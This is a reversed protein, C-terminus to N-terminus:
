PLRSSVNPLAYSQNLREQVMQRARIPDTGPEFILLISSLGTVSTSYIRDLWAVGNLLNGEMPVTILSEVETASLGLAETQVEVMPPDFEPFVDVPMDRLQALGFALLIVAVTIVLYRLRM